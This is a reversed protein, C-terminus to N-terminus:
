EMSFAASGAGSSAFSSTASFTGSFFAATFIVLWLLHKEYFSLVATYLLDSPLHAIQPFNTGNSDKVTSWIIGRALPPELSM